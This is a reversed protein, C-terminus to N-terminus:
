SYNCVRDISNMFATQDCNQPSHADIKPKAETYRRDIVEFINFVAKKTRMFDDIASMVWYEFNFWKPPEGHKDILKTCLQDFQAIIEKATSLRIQIVFLENKDNREYHRVNM